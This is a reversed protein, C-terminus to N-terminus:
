DDKDAHKWPPTDWLLSRARRLGRRRLKEVRPAHWGAIFARAAVLGPDEGALEALLRNGTVADNVQGLDDQLATLKKQFSALRKGPWLPAFFDLGYRLRKLRIRLRHLQAVDGDEIERVSQRSKRRIKRLAEEALADVPGGGSEPLAHLAEAFALLAAGPHPNDDQRQGRHQRLREALRELDDGRSTDALVPDVLTQLVVDADRSAGLEGALQGLRERWETAWAEPLPDAFLAVATRLRRLAVRSQHVSEAEGRLVGQANAQWHALGDFAITRFASLADQGSKIRSEGAHRAGPKADHFLAYGRQAKSTDEPLLPLDAALARALALLDSAEGSELELELESIPATRGAARVEGQDLMALVTVGARPALRWTERAFDTTFTPQLEDRMAELRTRVAEAEIASFDFSEGNWPQEWEPRSSLGGLSSAACKITQLWLAGAKRLRLAIRERRLDLAANDFYTNELQQPPGFSEAGALLPHARLAAVATPPLALKLEIEKSM